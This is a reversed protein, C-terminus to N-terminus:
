KNLINLLEKTKKLENNMKGIHCSCALVSVKGLELGSEKALFKGMSVLASYDAYGSKSVRNSRLVSTLYLKGNRPKLDIMLMCPQSYPNRSDRSPDFIILECRKVAKGQKLIKIVNEVQNFTGQWSVMRGWYSQHWHDKIFQYDLGEDVQFFDNIPKKPQPEVFTVSSAFDIRDDGMIERFHSDFWDDSQFETIEMMVNLEEILEGVKEGRELLHKSVKVWADGPSVAEIVTM